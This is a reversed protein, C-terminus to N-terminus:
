KLEKKFDVEVGNVRLCEAIDNKMNQMDTVPINPNESILRFTLYAEIEQLMGIPDTPKGERM